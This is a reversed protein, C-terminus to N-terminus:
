ITCMYNIHLDCVHVKIDRRFWLIDLIIESLVFNQAYIDELVFYQVSNDELVFKYYFLGFYWRYLWFSYISSPDNSSKKTNLAVKLLIEAIAHRDVFSLCYM